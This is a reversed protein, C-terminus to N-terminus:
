FQGSDIIQRELTRTATWKQTAQSYVLLAGDQLNATDVDTLLAVEQIGSEGQPGQPGQPGFDGPPGMIGGVVVVSTDRDVVVTGETTVVVSM